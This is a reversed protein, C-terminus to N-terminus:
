PLALERARGTVEARVAPLDVTGIGTSDVVRRGGVWVGKILGPHGSYVLHTLLDRDETIPVWPDVDLLVMDAKAGEGLHGLDDRGLARGGERTAMQLVDVPTLAGADAARLRALRLAGRMDEFLDLRDHSAPGDTGLGVRIGARRLDTVRAIGSAHKGNSSPCHAVATGRSALLEIDQDSLWVSHAAVVPSDLIGLRDLYATVSMGTRDAVGDGEHEAEALHIQIHMSHKLALEAVRKLAEEAVAYASHPGFGVSILEHDQWHRAEAVMAEVQAEWGGFRALDEAVLIPPTIVCRLGAASAADAVARPHFYMEHSTTIGNCLLEAAGLTMALAVDEPTLKGERPWMVETLWRSVPLGEGAGRLLVMPTHAHTNVLGPILLGGLMVIEADTPPAGSLPGSWTVVGNTVDVAGRSVVEPEAAMTILWDCLFRTM